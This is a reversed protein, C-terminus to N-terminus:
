KLEHQKEILNMLHGRVRDLHCRKPACFCELEIDRGNAEKLISCCCAEHEASPFDAEFLDCVRNREADSKNRMVHPNGLPSGRGGYVRIAGPEQESGRKVVTIKM